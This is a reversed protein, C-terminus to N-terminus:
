AQLPLTGTYFHPEHRRGGMKLLAQRALARAVLPLAITRSHSFRTRLLGRHGCALAAGTKSKLCLIEAEEAALSQDSRSGCM